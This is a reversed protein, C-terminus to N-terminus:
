PSSTRVLLEKENLSTLLACTNDMNFVMSEASITAGTIGDIDDKISLGCGNTGVFQDLWKKNTIEYGYESHYEIVRVTEIILDPDVITVYYFIDHGEDQEEPDWVACGGVRCCYARNLVLYGVLGSDNTLEHVEDYEPFMLVDDPVDLQTRTIEEDYTKEVVKDIKKELKENDSTWSTLLMCVVMLTMAGMTTMTINRKSNLM